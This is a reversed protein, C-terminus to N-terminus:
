DFVMKKGQFAAIGQGQQEKIKKKAIWSPHLQGTDDKARTTPKKAKSANSPVREADPKLYRRGFGRSKDSSSTAGRKPDWGADKVKRDKSKKGSQNKLHNAAAGYQQEALARRAQQGMRNKRKPKETTQEADSAFSESDSGSIYGSALTPLFTTKTTPKSVTTALKSLPKKSRAPPLPLGSPISMSEKVQEGHLSRSSTDATEILEKNGLGLDSESESGSSSALRDQYVDHDIGIDADDLSDESNRLELMPLREESGSATIGGEGEIDFYETSEERSSIAGNNSITEHEDERAQNYKSEQRLALVIQRVEKEISEIANRVATSKFLRATVNAVAPDRYPSPSTGKQLLEKPIIPSSAITKIRCITRAIYLEAADTLELAKLARIEANIREVDKSNGDQDNKSIAEKQRRGLKQREFGRALKLAGLLQIQGNELYGQLHEQQRRQSPNLRISIPPASISIEQFKRKPM